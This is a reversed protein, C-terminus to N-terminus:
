FSVSKVAEIEAVINSTPIDSDKKQHNVICMEVFKAASAYEGFVFKMGNAGEIITVMYEM